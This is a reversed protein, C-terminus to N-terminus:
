LSVYVFETHLLNLYMVSELGMARHCIIFFWKKRRNILIRITRLARSFATKVFAPIAIKLLFQPKSTGIRLSGVEHFYGGHVM